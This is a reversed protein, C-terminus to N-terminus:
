LSLSQSSCWNSLLVVTNMIQYLIIYPVYINMYSVYINMYTWIHFMILAIHHVQEDGDIALSSPWVRAPAHYCAVYMWPMFLFIVSLIWLFSVCLTYILYPFASVSSALFFLSLPLLSFLNFKFPTATASSINPSYYTNTCPCTHLFIWKIKMREKYLSLYTLFISNIKM